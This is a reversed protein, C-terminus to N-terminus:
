EIEIEINDRIEEAKKLSGEGVVYFMALPTDGKPPAVYKDGVEFYRKLGRIMTNEPINFKKIEGSAEEWVECATVSGGDKRTYSPDEGSALSINMLDLDVGQSYYALDRRFGGIRVNVEVIYVRGERILFEPHLFCSRLGSGEVVRRLLREIEKWYEQNIGKDNTRYVLQMHSQGVDVGRYVDIFDIIQLKGGSDVYCTVTSMTTDDLFEEIVIQGKNEYDRFFREKSFYESWYDLATEVDKESKIVYIGRSKVGFAPKVLFPYDISSIDTKFTSISSVKTWPRNDSGVRSVVYDHFLGKHKFKLLDEYGSGALKYKDSIKGALLIHSDYRNVVGVIKGEGVIKDIESFYDGKANVFYSEEILSDRKGYSVQIVELDPYNEEILNIIHKNAPGGGTIILFKRM